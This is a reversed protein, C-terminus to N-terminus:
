GRRRLPRQAAEGGDAAPTCVAYLNEGLRTASMFRKVVRRAAAFHKPARHPATPRPLAEDVVGRQCRDSHSAHPRAFLEDVGLGVTGMSVINLHHDEILRRLSRPNFYHLHIPFASYREAPASWFRQLPSLAIRARLSDANPVEVYFAGGSENLLDAVNDLVAGPDTLHELVHVMTVADATRHTLQWTVIDPYVAYGEQVLAERASEGLEVATIHEWGRRQALRLLHGAGAGFDLLTGRRAVQELLDLRVTDGSEASDMEFAPDHCDYDDLNYFADLLARAPRPNVFVLGCADCRCLGLHGGVSSFHAQGINVQPHPVPSHRGSGCCPCAKVQEILPAAM